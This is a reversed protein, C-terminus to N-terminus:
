APNVMEMAVVASPAIATMRESGTALLRRRMMVSWTMGPALPYGLEVLRLRFSRGQFFTGLGTSGRATM